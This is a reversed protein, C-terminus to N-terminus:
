KWVTDIPRASAAGGVYTQLGFGEELTRLLSYHDFRGGYTGPVVQGGFMAMVIRKPPAGIDGGSGEDFVVVILSHDDFSRSAEIKPIERRLFDDFQRLRGHVPSRHCVDHADECKNPVILNFRAIKGTHLTHGKALAEDFYRMDNPDTTGAPLVYSKCEAAGINSYYLVPIHYAAYLNLHRDSGTSVTTCPYPMSEAWVRWSERAADMQTFLSPVDQMCPVGPNVDQAECLIYQGSTIGVYNGASNHHLSYYDTLWAAEHKQGFLYPMSHRTVDAYDTNEGVILFVHSLRPVQSTARVDSGARAAVGTTPVLWALLLAAAAVTGLRKVM